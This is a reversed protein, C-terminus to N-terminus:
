SKLASGVFQVVSRPMMGYEEDGSLRISGPNIGVPFRYRHTGGVVIGFVGYCEFSDIELHVASQQPRCM